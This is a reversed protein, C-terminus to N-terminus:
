LEPYVGLELPWPGVCGPWERPSIGLGALGSLFGRVGEGPTIPDVPGGLYGAFRLLWVGVVLALLAFWFWRPARTLPDFSDKRVWGAEVLLARGVVWAFLPALLPSLPHLSVAEALDFRLLAWTARTMGCGPCPVGLFLRSPCTFAGSLILFLAAVGLLLGPHSRRPPNEDSM